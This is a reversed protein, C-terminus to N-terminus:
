KWRAETELRSWYPIWRSLIRERTGDATWRALAANVTTHLADDGPRMAWGLPEDNLLHLVPALGAEDSSVFWLMVPADHIVLDVRRQRLEIVADRPSPYVTISALKARERVFRSGTTNDVVGISAGTMLVSEPSTFRSAQTRRVIALLGSRLYPESFAMRIARERTITMGSMIIDIRGALLAPVLADWQLESVALPRGVAAAVERAFDIELGVVDAGRRFVFPPADATVGVRLPPPPAPPLRQSACGALAGLFLGLALLTAARHRPM